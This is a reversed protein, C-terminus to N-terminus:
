PTILCRTLFVPLTLPVLHSKLCHSWPLSWSTPLSYSSFSCEFFLSPCFCPGQAPFQGAIGSDTLLRSYTPPICFDPALLLATPHAPLSTVVFMNHVKHVMSLVKVHALVFVQCTQKIRLDVAWCYHCNVGSNRTPFPMRLLPTVARIKQKSLIVCQWQASPLSCPVPVSPLSM